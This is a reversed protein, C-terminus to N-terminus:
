EPPFYVHSTGEPGKHGGNHGNNQGEDGLLGIRGEEDANQDAREKDAAEMGDGGHVDHDLVAEDAGDGVAPVRADEHEEDQQADHHGQDVGGAAGGREPAPGDLM